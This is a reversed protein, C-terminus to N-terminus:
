GDVWGDLWNEGLISQFVHDLLFIPLFVSFFPQTALLGTSFTSLRQPVLFHGWSFQTRTHDQLSIPDFIFHAM